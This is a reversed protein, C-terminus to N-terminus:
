QVLRDGHRIREGQGGTLGGPLDGGALERGLRQDGGTEFPDGRALRHDAGPLIEIRLGRQRGGAAAVGLRRAARQM